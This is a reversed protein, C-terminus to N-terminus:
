TSFIKKIAFDISYCSEVVAELYHENINLM